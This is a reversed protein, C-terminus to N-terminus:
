ISYRFLLKVSNSFFLQQFSIQRGHIEVQSIMVLGSNPLRPTFILCSVPISSLFIVFLFLLVIIFLYLIKLYGFSILRLVNLLIMLVSHDSTTLLSIKISFTRIFSPVNFTMCIPTINWHGKCCARKKACNHWTHKTTILSCRTAWFQM